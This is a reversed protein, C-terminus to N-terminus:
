DEGLQEDGSLPEAEDHGTRRAARLREVPIPREITPADDFLEDSEDNPEPPKWRIASM